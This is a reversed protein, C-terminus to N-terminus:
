PAVIAEVAAGIELLRQDDMTEGMVMLGVPATGAAHCPITLACRDLFNGILNSMLLRLGIRGWEKPDDVAAIPPAIIPCTPMLVADFHRTAADAAAIM